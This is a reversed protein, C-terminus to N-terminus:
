LRCEKGVRREESRVENMPMHMEESVALALKFTIEDDYAENSIFFDVEIGSRDRIAEWKALGFNAVVLDEIAKNVIGYM